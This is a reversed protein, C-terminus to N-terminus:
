PQMEMGMAPKADMRDHSQMQMAGPQTLGPVSGPAAAVWIGLGVLVLALLALRM